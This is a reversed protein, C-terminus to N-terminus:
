GKRKAKAEKKLMIKPERLFLSWAYFGLWLEKSKLKLFPQPLIM